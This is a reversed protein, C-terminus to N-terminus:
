IVSNVPEKASISLTIAEVFIVKAGASSGVAKAAKAMVTSSVSKTLTSSKFLKVTIVEPTIVACTLVPSM